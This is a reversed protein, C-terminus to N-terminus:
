RRFRRWLSPTFLFVSVALPHNRLAEALATFTFHDAMLQLDVRLDLVALLLLILPILPLGRQRQQRPPAPSPSAVSTMTPTM